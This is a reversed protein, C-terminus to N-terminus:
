KEINLILSVLTWQTSTISYMDVKRFIYRTSCTIIILLLQIRFRGKCDLSHNTLISFRISYFIIKGFQVTDTREFRLFINEDSSINQSTGIYLFSADIPAGSWRRLSTTKTSKKLSRLKRITKMWAIKIAVNYFNDGQM